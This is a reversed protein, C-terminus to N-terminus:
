YDKGVWDRYIYRILILCSRENILHDTIWENNFFQGIDSGDYLYKHFPSKNPSTSCGM